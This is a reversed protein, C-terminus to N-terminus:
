ELGHGVFGVIHGAQDIVDHISLNSSLNLSQDNTPHSKGKM